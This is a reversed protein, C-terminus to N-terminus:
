KSLIRGIWGLLVCFRGLVSMISGAIQRLTERLPHALHSGGRLLGIWYRVRSVKPITQEPVPLVKRYRLCVLYYTQFRTLPYCWVCLTPLIYFMRRQNLTLFVIKYGQYSQASPNM